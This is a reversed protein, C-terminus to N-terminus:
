RLVKERTLNHMAILMVRHRHILTKQPMFGVCLTSNFYVAFRSPQHASFIFIKAVVEAIPSANYLGKCLRSKKPDDMLSWQLETVSSSAADIGRLDDGFFIAPFIERYIM